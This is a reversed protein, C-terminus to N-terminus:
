EYTVDLTIKQGEGVKAEVYLIHDGFKPERSFEGSAPLKKSVIEVDQDQNSPPGPLWIRAVKGAPLDTVVVRYTFQFSRSKPAATKEHGPAQLKAPAPGDATGTVTWLLWLTLTAIFPMHRLM